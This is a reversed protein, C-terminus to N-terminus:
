GDRVDRFQVVNPATPAHTVVAFKADIGLVHVVIIKFAVLKVNAVLEDAHVTALGLARVASVAFM